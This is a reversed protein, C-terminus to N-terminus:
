IKIRGPRMARDVGEAVTVVVLLMVKGVWPGVEWCFMMMFRSLAVSSHSPAFVIDHSSHCSSVLELTGVTHIAM